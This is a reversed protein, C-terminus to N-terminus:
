LELDFTMYTNGCEDKGDVEIDVDVTVDQVTCKSNAHTNFEQQEPIKQKHSRCGRLSIVSPNSVRRLSVFKPNSTNYFGCTVSTETSTTYQWSANASATAVDDYQPTFNFKNCWNTDNM